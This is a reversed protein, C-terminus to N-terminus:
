SVRTMLSAESCTKPDHIVLIACIWSHPVGVSLKRIAERRPNPKTLNKIDNVYLRGSAHM